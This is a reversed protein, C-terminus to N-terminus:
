FQNSWVSFNTGNSKDVSFESEQSGWTANPPAVGPHQWGLRNTVIIRDSPVLILCWKYMMIKLCPVTQSFKGTKHSFFVSHCFNLMVFTKTSFSLIIYSKLEQHWIGTWVKNFMLLATTKSDSVFTSLHSFNSLCTGMQFSKINSEVEVMRSCGRMYVMENLNWGSDSWIHFFEKPM